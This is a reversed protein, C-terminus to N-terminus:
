GTNKKIYETIVQQVAELYAQTARTLIQHKKWALHLPIQIQPELPRLTLPSDESITILNDFTLLCGMGQEVFVAANHILDYSGLIRADDPARNLTNNLLERIMNHRSYIMPMNRLDELRIHPKSALPSDKRM